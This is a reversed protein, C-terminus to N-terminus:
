SPVGQVYLTSVIAALLPVPPGSVTAEVNLWVEVFRAGVPIYVHQRRHTGIGVPQDCELTYIRGTTRKIEFPQWAVIACHNPVVAEYQEDETPKPHRGVFQIGGISAEWETRGKTREDLSAQDLFYATGVDSTVVTWDPPISVVYQERTNTYTQTLQDASGTAIRAPPSADPTAPLPRPAPSGPHAATATPVPSPPIVAATGAGAPGLQPTSIAAVPEAAPVPGPQPRCSTMLTALIAAGLGVRM